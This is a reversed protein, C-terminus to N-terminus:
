KIGKNELSTLAKKLCETIDKHQEKFEAESIERTNSDDVYKYYTYLYLSETASYVKHNGLTDRELSLVNWDNLSRCRNVVQYINEMDFLTLISNFTIPTKETERIHVLINTIARILHLGRINNEDIVMHNIIADMIQNSMGKEFLCDVTKIKNKYLHSENLKKYEASYVHHNKYGLAIIIAELLDSHKINIQQAKLYVKLNYGLLKVNNYIFANHNLQVVHYSLFELLRGVNMQIYGHVEFMHETNGNKLPDFYGEIHNLYTLLNNIIYKPLKKHTLLEQEIVDLNLSRMLILVDLSEGNNDRLWVHAHVVASFLAKMREYAPFDDIPPLFYNVISKSDLSGLLNNIAFDIEYKKRFCGIEKVTSANLADILLPTSITYGKRNLVSKIQRALAKTEEQNVLNFSKNRTHSMM